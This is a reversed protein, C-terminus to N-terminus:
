LNESVFFFSVKPFHSYFIKMITVFNNTRLNSGCFMWNISEKHFWTDLNCPLFNSFFFNSFWKDNPNKAVGTIKKVKGLIV